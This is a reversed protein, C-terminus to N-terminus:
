DKRVKVAETTFNNVGASPWAEFTFDPVARISKACTRNNEVQSAVFSLVIYYSQARHDTTHGFYLVYLVSHWFVCPLAYSARLWIGDCSGYRM